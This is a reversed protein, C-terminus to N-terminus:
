DDGVSGEVSAPAGRWPLIMPTRDRYQRYAQGYLDILDAEEWQIALLIYATTAMAFLLHAATMTPASWFVILWGLYLPHRVLKYLAPIRFTPPTYEVGRLYLWVQRLGFLDFHNIMFTALFVLTWGLGYAAYVAARWAPSEIQWVVGGMPQWYYFLLFLAVCTFLVYTPREAPPPIIRTWARKFWQRAMVSHQVAFLGLLGTNVLFATLLSGDRGTDIAKPVGFNGLFGIAYLFTAFFASYCVVGYVFILKRKSM